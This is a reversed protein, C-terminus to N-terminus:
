HKVLKLQNRPVLLFVHERERAMRISNSLNPQKRRVPLMWTSLQMNYTVPWSPIGMGSLPNVSRNDIIFEDKAPLILSRTSQRSRPITPFSSALYCLENM